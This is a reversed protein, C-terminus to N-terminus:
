PNFGPPGPCIVWNVPKPWSVVGGCESSVSVWAHDVAELVNPKILNPLTIPRWSSGNWYYLALVAEFPGNVVAGAGNGPGGFRMSAAIIVVDGVHYSDFWVVHTGDVSFGFYATGSRISIVLWGCAPAGPVNFGAHALTGNPFWVNSSYVSTLLTPVPTTSVIFVQAIYTIGSANALYANLLVSWGTSPFGRVCYYGAVATTNVLARFGAAENTVYFPTAPLRTGGTPVLAPMLPAILLLVFVITLIM